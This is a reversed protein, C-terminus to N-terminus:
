ARTLEAAADARGTVLASNPTLHFVGMSRRGDVHVGAPPLPHGIIVESRSWRGPGQAGPGLLPGAAFETEHDLVPEGGVIVRQHVALRGSPEGHRGLVVQEVMRVRATDAADLLVSTRHVSGTVSITAQPQWDLSAHEGVVLEIRLGSPEGRPGPQAMMAAVSRVRVNCGETVELRFTLDDGGLPGAAGNVLLLSLEQGPRDEVRVLLPVEVRMARVVTRGQRDLGAEVATVARV